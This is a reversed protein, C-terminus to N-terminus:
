GPNKQPRRCERRKNLRIFGSRGDLKEERDLRVREDRTVEDVRSRRNDVSVDERVLASPRERARVAAWSVVQHHGQADVVADARDTARFM